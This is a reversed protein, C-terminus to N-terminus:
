SKSFPINATSKGGSEKHLIDFKVVIQGNRLQLGVGIDFADDNEAKVNLLSFNLNKGSRRGIAVGQFSTNSSMVAEFRRNKEVYAVTGRMSLTTGALSCRGRLGIRDPGTDTFDMKCLVTEDEGTSALKAEGRGRWNGVYSKLLEIDAKGAFSPTSFGSALVAGLILAKFANAIHKFNM